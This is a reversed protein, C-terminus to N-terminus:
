HVVVSGKAIVKGNVDGLVVYYIGRAAPKINVDVLNYASNIPIHQISKVKAGHADYITISRQTNAGGINHYAV